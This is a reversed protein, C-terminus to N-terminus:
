PLGGRGQRSRLVARLRHADAVEAATLPRSRSALALTELEQSEGETAGRLLNDDLCDYVETLGATLAAQADGDLALVAAPTLGTGRGILAALELDTMEEVDRQAASSGLRQELCQLRRDLTM